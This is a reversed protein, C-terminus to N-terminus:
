KETKVEVTMGDAETADVVDEFEGIEVDIEKEGRKANEERLAAVTAQKKRIEETLRDAQAILDAYMETEFKRQEYCRRGIEEYIKQLEEKRSSIEITLKAIQGFAAARNAGQEYVNRVGTADAAEKVKGAIKEVAENFIEKYDNM